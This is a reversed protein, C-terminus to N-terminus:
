ALGRVKGCGPPGYLLVGSATNSNDFLPAYMQSYRGKVTALSSLLREKAIELGAINNWSSRLAETNTQSPQPAWLCQQMLAAESRTLGLLVSEVSPTAKGAAAPESRLPLGSVVLTQAMQLVGLSPLATSSAKGREHAQIATAAAQPDQEFFALVRAVDDRKLYSPDTGALEQSYEEVVEAAAKWVAHILYFVLSVQLGAASWRGLKEPNELLSRGLRVPDKLLSPLAGAFLSSLPSVASPKSSRREMTAYPDMGELKEKSTEDGVLEESMKETTKNSESPLLPVFRPPPAVAQRQRQSPLFRQLWPQRKTVGIKLQSRSSSSISEDLPWGALCPSVCFSGTVLLLLCIVPSPWLPSLRVGRRKTRLSGREFSDSM